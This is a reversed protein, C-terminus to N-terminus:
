AYMIRTREKIFENDFGSLKGSIIIRVTKIENERALVYAVIPGMTFTKYKQAQINEMIKNDCWCEFVSKSKKLADVAEQFGNNELYNCVENVGNDVATSLENINIGNCEIMAKRAFEGDKGAAACRVAIKINAIVLQIHAYEKIMENDSALGAEKIAQLTAKDIIIDCLQGDGTQLLVETAEKAVATMDNPLRSYEEKSICEMLFEPELCGGKIFIRNNQIGLKNDESNYGKGHKSNKELNNQIGVNINNERNEHARLVETEIEAKRGTCVSKIAAKLNHFENNVTLIRCQNKDKVIEDLVKWTKARETELMEEYTEDPNGNGWGKDRLMRVCDQASNCQILQNITEQTFLASELARIRAVGYTYKNDM